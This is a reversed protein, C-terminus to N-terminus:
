KQKNRQDDTDLDVQRIKIALDLLVEKQALLWETSTSVRSFGEAGNLRRRRRWLCHMLSITTVAVALLFPSVM